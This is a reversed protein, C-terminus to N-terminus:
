LLAVVRFVLNICIKNRVPQFDDIACKGGNGADDTRCWRLGASTGFVMLPQSIRDRIEGMWICTPYRNCVSTFRSEQRRSLSTRCTNSGIVGARNNRYDTWGIILNACYSRSCCWCIPNSISKTTRQSQLFCRRRCRQGCRTMGCVVGFTLSKVDPAPSEPHISANM